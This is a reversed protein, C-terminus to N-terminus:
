FRFYLFPNFSGDAIYATSLILLLCIAIPEAINLVLSIKKYRSLKEYLKKPLPTSGIIALVLIVAYSKLYYLTSASVVSFDGSFFMAGINKAAESLSQADFLVFGLIVFLLVYLHRIGKAKELLKGLWLKENILLVAYMVGWLLFNFAAGHWLGTLMWVVFLNFCLRPKKVRNGGLPFYVYDKFWTGLSIHWRRWFESISKSIYPYNFNELFDFGLIKGLGIAMDSYGSFDFYIHLTYGIAYVWFFLVSKDDSEKFAECLGYLQNAILVKKSLGFVFRKIGDAAYKINVTRNELREAINNYRVIPGAILQPFMTIYAALNVFSRQARNTGRYVDIVYSLLQFTYFSIGVPLAIKLLPLTRPFILNFSDIFFNAYKFVFLICFSLVISVSALTKSLKTGQHKEILLGFIYGQLVSFLMLFLLKPEEWGYFILSFFLLVFNKFRKPSLFYVILFVSLFIYLFVLDSFVM